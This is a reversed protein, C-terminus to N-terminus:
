KAQLSLLYSVVDKKEDDFLRFITMPFHDEQLFRTFYAGDRAPRRVLDEYRPAMNPNPADYTRLHCLRCWQDVIREGRAAADDTARAPGFFCGTLIAITTCTARM